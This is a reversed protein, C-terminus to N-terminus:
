DEAMHQPLIRFLIKRRNHKELYKTSAHTADHRALKPQM